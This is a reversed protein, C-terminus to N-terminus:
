RGGRACLGLPPGLAHLHAEALRRLELLVHDTGLHERLAVVTPACGALRDPLLTVIAVLAARVARVRRRLWQAAAKPDAVSDERDSPRAQEIAAAVSAARERALVASELDDLTGSLRSTLFVPLLSITQRALTCWFRAVRTGTPRVRAYSGHRHVSCGGQPHFPCLVDLAAGNWERGAVYQEDTIQLFLIIQVASVLGRSSWDRPSM